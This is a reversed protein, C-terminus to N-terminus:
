YMNLNGGLHWSIEFGAGFYLINHACGDKLDELWFRAPRLLNM